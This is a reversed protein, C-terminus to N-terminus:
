KKTKSDTYAKANNLTTQDGTAMTKKQGTASADVQKKADAAAADLIEKKTPLPPAFELPNGAVTTKGSAKLSATKGNFTMAGKSTMQIDEDSNIKFTKKSNILGGQKLNITVAKDSDFNIEKSAKITVSGKSEITTDEGSYIKVQGKPKKNEDESYATINVQKESSVNVLAKASINVETETKISIKGDLGFEITMTPVYKQKFLEEPKEDDRKKRFIQFKPKGTGDLGFQWIPVDRDKKDGATKGKAYNWYNKEEGNQGYVQSEIETWESADMMMLPDAVVQGSVPKFKKDKLAQILDKNKLRYIDSYKEMRSLSILNPWNDAEAANTGIKSILRRGDLNNPQLWHEKTFSSELTTFDSRWTEFGGGYRSSRNLIAEVLENNKKNWTSHCFTGGIMAVAGHSMGVIRSGEDSEYLISDGPLVLTRDTLPSSGDRVPAEYNEPHKRYDEYAKDLEERSQVKYYNKIISATTIAQEDGPLRMDYLHPVACILAEKLVEDTAREARLADLDDGEVLQVGLKPAYGDIYTMGEHRRISVLMGISPLASGRTGASLPNNVLVEEKTYADVRVSATQKLVDVDTVVGVSTNSNFFHSYSHMFAERGGIDHKFDRM